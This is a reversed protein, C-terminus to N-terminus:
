EPLHRLDPLLELTNADPLQVDSIILAPEYQALHAGAERWTHVGTAAYGMRKLEGLLLRNLLRDDEVLLLHERTTM